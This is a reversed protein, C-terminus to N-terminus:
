DSKEGERKKKQTKRSFFSIVSCTALIKKLFFCHGAKHLIALHLTRSFAHHFFHGM